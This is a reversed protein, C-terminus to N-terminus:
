HWTFRLGSILFINIPRKNKVIYNNYIKFQKWSWLFAREGLVEMAQIMFRSDIQNSVGLRGLNIYM